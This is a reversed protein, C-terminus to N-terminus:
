TACAFLYVRGCVCHMHVHLDVYRGVEPSKMHNCSNEDQYLFCLFAISLPSYKPLYAFLCIAALSIKSLFYCVFSLFIMCESVCSYIKKNEGRSGVAQNSHIFSIIQPTDASASLCSLARAAESVCLWLAATVAVASLTWKFALAHTCVLVRVVCTLLPVFSCPLM